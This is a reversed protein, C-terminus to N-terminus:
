GNRERIPNRVELKSTKQIWHDVVQGKQRFKSDQFQLYLPSDAQQWTNNHKKKYTLIIYIRFAVRHLFLMSCVWFNCSSSFLSFVYFFVLLYTLLPFNHQNRYINKYKLGNFKDLLMDLDLIYKSSLKSLPIWPANDIICIHFVTRILFHM